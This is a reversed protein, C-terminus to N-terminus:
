IKEVYCGIYEEMGKKIMMTKSFKTKGLYNEKTMKYLNGTILSLEKRTMIKSMKNFINKLEYIKGKLKKTAQIKETTLEQRTKMIGNKDVIIEKMTKKSKIISQERRTTFNGDVIILENMTKENKKRGEKAITTKMGDVVIEKKMTTSQKQSAIEKISTEKGNVIIKKNKTKQAKKSVEKAITTKIGNVIIEKKVTDSCKKGGSKYSDKNNRIFSFHKGTTDYGFPTQNSENWFYNNLKVNFYQHLFAEYIMKDAPNDFVKIIKIKYNEKKHENITNYKSSTKYTWFEEILNNGKYNKKPTHSGYYHQKENRTYDTVRYVYHKRGDSTFDLKKSREDQLVLKRYISYRKM